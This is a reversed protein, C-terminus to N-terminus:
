KHRSQRWEKFYHKQCLQRRRHEAFKGCIKCIIKNRLDYEKILRQITTFSCRYKQAIETMTYNKFLELLTDAPIYFKKQFQTFKGIEPHRNKHESRNVIELNDLENNLPNGDKHHVLESSLLSRNLHREMILRAEDIQKGNIYKRPRYLRKKM